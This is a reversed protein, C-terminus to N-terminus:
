LLPGFLIFYFIFGSLFVSTNVLNGEWLKHLKSFRLNLEVLYKTCFNSPLCSMPFCGWQLLRLKPSLFSLGKPLYLKNSQDGYTCKFRLFKLNSMGEFAGDSINLEGLLESPDFHIGIVSSTGQFLVM